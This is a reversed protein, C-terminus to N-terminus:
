MERRRRMIDLLPKTILLGKAKDERAALCILSAIEWDVGTGQGMAHKIGCWNELEKLVDSDIILNIEHLKYEEEGEPKTEDGASM